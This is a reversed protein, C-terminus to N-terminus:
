RKSCDSGNWDGERITSAEISICKASGSSKHRVVLVANTVSWAASGGAARLMGLRDFILIDDVGNVPATLGGGALRLLELSSPITMTQADVEERTSSACGDADYDYDETCDNFKFIVYSASSVLRVGTGRMQPIATSPGESMANVRTRQVDALLEKTKGSVQESRVLDMSVAAIAALIGIIATVVVLEILSFGSDNKLTKKKKYNEIQRM